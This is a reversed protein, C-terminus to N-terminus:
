RKGGDKENSYFTHGCHQCKVRKRTGMKVTTNDGHGVIHDDHCKPCLIGLGDKLKMRGCVPCKIRERSVTIRGIYVKGGVYM